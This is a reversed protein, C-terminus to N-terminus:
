NFNALCISFLFTSVDPEFGGVILGKIGPHPKMYAQLSKMVARTKTEQDRGGCGFVKAWLKMNQHYFHVYM